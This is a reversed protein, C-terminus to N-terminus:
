RKVFRELAAQKVKICEEIGMDKIAKVFADFESLPRSGNIFAVTNEAVYTEIDSYYKAYVMSEDSSLQVGSPLVYDADDTYWIDSMYSKKAVTIEDELYNLRTVDGYGPGANGAIYGFLADIFFIGDPNNLIKDTYYLKGNEDYDYTIGKEGYNKYMAGEETYLYDCWRICEIIHESKASIATCLSVREATTRFHIKDGAKRVPASIGDMYYDPDDAYQRVRVAEDGVLAIPLVAAGAIGNALRAEDDIADGSTQAWFDGLLGEDYWKHMMELYEKFEPQIQGYKITGNDNYFGFGINWASVFMSAEFTGDTSPRLPYDCDPYMSHFGVLVDHWDDLTVPKEKGIDALWDRRIALGGALLPQKMEITFFGPVNGADTTTSRLTIEDMERAYRYNPAYEDLYDNLKLYVGDEIAKDYGGVYLDSIDCMIDPYDGSAIFLSFSTESDNGKAPHQWEVHINTEREIAKMSDTGNVSDSIALGFGWPPWWGRVTIPEDVIPKKFEGGEAVALTKKSSGDPTDTKDSAPQQSCACFLGILLAATLLLCAARKVNKM